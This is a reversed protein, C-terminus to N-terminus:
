PTFGEIERNAQLAGSTWEAKTANRAAYGVVVVVSLPVHFIYIITRSPLFHPAFRKTPIERLIIVEYTM